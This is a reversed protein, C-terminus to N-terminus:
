PEYRWSGKREALEAQGPLHTSPKVMGYADSNIVDMEAERVGPDDAIGVLEPEASPADAAAAAAVALDVEEVASDPCMRRQLLPGGALAAIGGILLAILWWVGFVLWLVLFLIAGGLNVMRWCRRACEGKETTNSM